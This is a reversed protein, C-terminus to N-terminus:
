RGGFLEDYPFDSGIRVLQERCFADILAREEENILEDSKGTEGRRVMEARQTAKELPVNPPDFKSANAKMYRLSSREIVQARQDATLDVHMCAAIADITGPLDAKVQGYTRVVANPRERLNWFCSTHAAWATAILNPKLWLKVWQAPTVRHRIGWIGLLFYYSSVVVEKPDRLIAVYKAEPSYPVPPIPLHTKIVRMGTPSAFLPSPDDFPVIGPVETEPWSVVDHIHEFDAAGRHAIQQCMQMAWNTGSKAFTAVFVDHETAEYQELARCRPAFMARGMVNVLLPELLGTAAAARVFLIGPLMPNLLATTKSKPM